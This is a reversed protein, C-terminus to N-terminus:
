HGTVSQLVQSKKYYCGLVSQLVQFVKYYCGAVSQLVQCSQVLLRECNTIGSLKKSIAM